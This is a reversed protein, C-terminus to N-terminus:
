PWGMCRALVYTVAGMTAGAMLALPLIVGVFVMATEYVMAGLEDILKM